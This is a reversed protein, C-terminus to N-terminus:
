SVRVLTPQRLPAGTPSTLATNVVWMAGNSSAAFSPAFILPSQILTFAGSSINFGALGTHRESPLGACFYITNNIIVSPGTQPFTIQAEAPVAFSSVRSTTPNIRLVDNGRQVWLNTGDDGIPIGGKVGPFNVKSVAGTTISVRVFYTKYGDETSASLWLYHSDATMNLGPGLILPTTIMTAALTATNVRLLGRFGPIWLYKGALIIPGGDYAINANSAGPLKIRKTALTSANIRLLTWSQSNGLKQDMVWVYRKSAVLATPLSIFKSVVTQKTGTTADIRVLHAGKGSNGADTIWVYKGAVALGRPGAVGTHSYATFTAPMAASAPTALAALVTLVAAPLVTFLVRHRM